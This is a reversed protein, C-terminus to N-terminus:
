STASYAIVFSFARYGASGPSSPIQQEIQIHAIGDVPIEGDETPTTGVVISEKALPIQNDVDGYGNKFVNWGSTFRTGETWPTDPTMSMYIGGTGADGWSLYTAIDDDPDLGPYSSGVYRQVYLAVDTIPEVVADHSIFVDQFDSSDGPDVSGSDVTDPLSDGGATDSITLNVTM